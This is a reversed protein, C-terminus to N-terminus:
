SSAWNKVAPGTATELQEMTVRRPVYLYEKAYMLGIFWSKPRMTLVRM